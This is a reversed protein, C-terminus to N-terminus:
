KPFVGPDEFRSDSRGVPRAFTWGGPKVILNRAAEGSNGAFAHFPLTVVFIGTGSVTTALGLPRCVFADAAVSASTPEPPAKIAFGQESSKLTYGIEGAAGLGACACVLAAAMIVTAVKRIM